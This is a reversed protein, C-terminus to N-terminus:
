SSTNSVFVPLFVYVEVTIGNLPAQISYSVSPFSINQTRTSLVLFIGTVVNNLAIPSTDSSWILDNNPSSFKNSVVIWFSGIFVLSSANISIYLFNLGPSNGVTSAALLKNLPNNKSLLLYSKAFTPLNLNLWFNLIALLILFWTAKLSIISLSVPSTNTVAPSIIVGSTASSIWFAPIFITSM